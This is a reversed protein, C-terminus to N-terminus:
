LSYNKGVEDFPICGQYPGPVPEYKLVESGIEKSTCFGRIALSKFSRYFGVPPQEEVSYGWVGRTFKPSNAEEAELVARKQEADLKHFVKGYKEKCAANFEDMQSSIDKQAVEDMAQAYVIDIFMDVKVDLGGPTDTTPLITDVLATVLHAQETSLFQPTWSLRDQAQCSQLLALFSTSATAAAGLLATNKLADRRNM